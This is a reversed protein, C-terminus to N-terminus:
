EQTCTLTVSLMFMSAPALAATIAGTELLDSFHLLTTRPQYSSSHNDPMANLLKCKLSKLSLILLPLGICLNPYDVHQNTNGRQSSICEVDKNQTGTRMIIVM